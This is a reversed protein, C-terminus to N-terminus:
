LWVPLTKGEKKDKPIRDQLKSMSLRESKMFVDMEKIISEVTTTRTQMLRKIETIVTKRRGWRKRQCEGKKFDKAWMERLSLRGFVGKNYANWLARVTNHDKEIVFVDGSAAHMASVEAGGSGGERDGAGLMGAGQQGARKLAAFVQSASTLSGTPPAPLPDTPANAASPSSTALPPQRLLPDILSADIGRNKEAAPPTSPSLAQVPASGSGEGPFIMRTELVASSMFQMGAALNGLVSGLVKQDKVRDEQLGEAFHELGKALMTLDQAISAQLERVGRLLSDQVVDVHSIMEPMIQRFRINMPTKTNDNAIM